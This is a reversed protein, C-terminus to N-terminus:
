DHHHHVHDDHDNNNEHTQHTLCPMWKSGMRHAGTCNFKKAAQEAELKTEFVAATGERESAHGTLM